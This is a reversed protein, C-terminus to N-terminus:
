IPGIQQERRREAPRTLMPGLLGIVLSGRRSPGAPPDFRLAYFLQILPGLQAQARSALVVNLKPGGRSDAPEPTGSGFLGLAESGRIELDRFRTGPAGSAVKFSQWRRVIAALFEISALFKTALQSAARRRIDRMSSVNPAGM